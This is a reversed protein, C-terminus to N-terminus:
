DDWGEKRTKTAITYPEDGDMGVISIFEYGGWDYRTYRDVWRVAEGDTDCEFLLTEGDGLIHNNYEHEKSLEDRVITEWEDQTVEPFASEFESYSALWPRIGSLSGAGRTQIIDSVIARLTEKANM